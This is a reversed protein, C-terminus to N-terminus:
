LSLLLWLSLYGSIINELPEKFFEFPWKVVYMIIWVTNGWDESQKLWRDFFSNSCFLNDRKKGKKLRDFIIAMFPMYM